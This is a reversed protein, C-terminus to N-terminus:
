ARENPPRPALQRFDSPGGKGRHIARDLIEFICRLREDHTLEVAEDFTLPVRERELQEVGDDRIRMRTLEYYQIARIDGALARKILAKGIGLAVNARGRELADSIGPNRDKIQVWTSGSVGLVLRSIMAQTLGAAAAAEIQRVQKATIEVKPRGRRRALSVGHRSKSSKASRQQQTEPLRLAIGKGNNKRVHIEPMRGERELREGPPGHDDQNDPTPMEM